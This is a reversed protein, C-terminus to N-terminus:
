SGSEPVFELVNANEDVERGLERDDYRMESMWQNVSEAWSGNSSPTYKKMISEPTVRGQDIYNKKLERAARDFNAEYSDFMLTGREHIGFGLCNYSGPPIKKCLNSEQMAIAPLLRFDIGYRDAIEVLKKGYEDYPKLPSTHRRLFNAVIIPRADESEIMTSVGMVQGSPAILSDESVVVPTAEPIITPEPTSEAATALTGTLKLTTFTAIGTMIVGVSLLMWAFAGFLHKM